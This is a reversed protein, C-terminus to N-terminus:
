EIWGGKKADEQIIEIAKRWEDYSRSETYMNPARKRDGYKKLIHLQADTLKGCLYLKTIMTEVDVLECPRKRSRGPSRVSTSQIKKAYLFWFWLQEANAFKNEDSM